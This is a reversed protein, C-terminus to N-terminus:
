LPISFSVQGHGLSVTLEAGGSNQEIDMIIKDCTFASPHRQQGLPRQLQQAFYSGAIAYGLLANPRFLQQFVGVKEAWRRWPPHQPAPCIFCASHKM